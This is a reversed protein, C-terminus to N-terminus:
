RRGAGELRDFVHRLDLFIVVGSAIFLAVGADHLSGYESGHAIFLGALGTVTFLPIVLALNWMDNVLLFEVLGPGGGDLAHKVRLFALAIAALSLVMGCGYDGPREGASAAFAGVIALVALVLIQVWFGLWSWFAREPNVPTQVARNIQGETAKGPSHPHQINAAPGATEIAAAIRDQAAMADNLETLGNQV